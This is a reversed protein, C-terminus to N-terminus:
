VGSIFAKTGNLVYHSNGDKKATTRLAAADSGSGPETLAYSAM